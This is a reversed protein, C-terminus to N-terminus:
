HKIKIFKLIKCHAKFYSYNYKYRIIYNVIAHNSYYLRKFLSVRIIDKDRFNYKMTTLLKSHSM